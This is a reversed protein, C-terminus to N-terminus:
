VEVVGRKRSTGICRERSGHRRNSDLGPGSGGLKSGVTSTHSGRSTRSNCAARRGRKAIRAGADTHTTARSSPIRAYRRVTRSSYGRSFTILMQPSRGGSLSPVGLGGYKVGVKERGLMLFEGLDERIGFKRKSLQKSGGM